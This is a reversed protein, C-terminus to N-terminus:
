VFSLCDDGCVSGSKKSSVVLGADRLDHVRNLVDHLVRLELMSLDLDSEGRVFLDSASYYLEVHCFESGLVRVGEVATLDALEFIFIEICGSCCYTDLSAVDMRTSCLALHLVGDEDSHLKVAEEWHILTRFVGAAIFAEEVKDAELAFDLCGGERVDDAVVVHVEVLLLLCIHLFAHVEDVCFVALSRGKQIHLVLIIIHALLDLRVVM